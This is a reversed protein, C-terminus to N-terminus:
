WVGPKKWLVTAYPVVSGTDALRGSSVPFEEAENSRDTVGSPFTPTLESSYSRPPPPSRTFASPVNVPVRESVM